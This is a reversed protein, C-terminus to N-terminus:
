DDMCPGCESCMATLLYDMCPGCEDTVVCRLEKAMGAGCQGSEIAQLEKAMSEPDMLPEIFFAAFRELGERLNLTDIDFVFRTQM